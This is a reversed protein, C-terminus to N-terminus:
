NAGMFHDYTVLQEWFDINIDLLAVEPEQSDRIKQQVEVRHHDGDNHLPLIITLVHTGAPDLRTLVQAVVEPSPARSYGREWSDRMINILTQTNALRVGTGQPETM